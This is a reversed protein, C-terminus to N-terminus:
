AFAAVVSATTSASTVKLVVGGDGCTAIIVDKATLVQPTMAWYDNVDLDTINDATDYMWLRPSAAAGVSVQKLTAKTLAM